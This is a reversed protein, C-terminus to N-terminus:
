GVIEINPYVDIIERVYKYDSLVTIKTITIIDIM